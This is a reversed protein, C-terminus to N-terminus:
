PTFRLSTHVRVVDSPPPRVHLTRLQRVICRIGDVDELMVGNVLWPDGLRDIVFGAMMGSAAPLGNAKRAAFGKAHCRAFGPLLATLAPRLADDMAAPEIKGLAVKPPAISADGDKEQGEESQGPGSAADATPFTNRRWTIEGNEVLSQACNGKEGEPLSPFRNAPGCETELPAGLLRDLGRLACVSGLAEGALVFNNGELALVALEGCAPADGRACVPARQDIAVIREEGSRVCEDKSGGDKSACLRALATRARPADVGLAAGAVQWCSMANGLECAHETPALWALYERSSAHLPLAPSARQWGNCGEISGSRCAREFFKTREAATADGRL